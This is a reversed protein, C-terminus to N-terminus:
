IVNFLAHLIINPTLSRNLLYLKGFLYGTYCQASTSLLEVIQFDRSGSIHIIGFIIAHLVNAYNEKIGLKLLGILLLGRFIVEENLAPYYLNYGFNYIFEFGNKSILSDFNFLLYIFPKFILYLLLAFLVQKITTKWGFDKLKLGFIFIIVILLNIPLLFLTNHLLTHNESAWGHFSMLNIYILYPIFIAIFAYIHKKEKSYEQKPKEKHKYAYYGIVYTVIIFALVLHIYNFLMVLLLCITIFGQEFTSFGYLRLWESYKISRHKSKHFMFYPLLLTSVLILSTYIILYTMIETTM